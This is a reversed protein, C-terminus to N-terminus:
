TCRQLCCCMIDRPLVSVAFHLQPNRVAVGRTFGDAALRRWLLVVSHGKFPLLHQWWWGWTCIKVLFTCSPFFIRVVVQGMHILILQSLPPAQPSRGCCRHHPTSSHRPPTTPGPVLVDGCADAVVLVLAAGGVENKNGLLLEHHPPLIIM